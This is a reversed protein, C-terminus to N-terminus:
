SFISFCVFSFCNKKKKSLSREPELIDVDITYCQKIKFCFPFFLQLFPQYLDVHSQLLSSSSLLWKVFFIFVFLFIGVDDITSQTARFCCSYQYYLAKISDKRFIKFVFSFLQFQLMTSPPRHPEVSLSIRRHHSTNTVQSAKLTLYRTWSYRRYLPLLCAQLSICPPFIM